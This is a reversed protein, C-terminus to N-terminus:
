GDPTSVTHKIGVSPVNAMPPEQNVRLLRLTGLTDGDTTRLEIDCGKRTTALVVAQGALQLDGLEGDEESRDFMVWRWARDTRIEMGKTPKGMDM